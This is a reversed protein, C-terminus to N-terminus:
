RRVNAFLFRGSHDLAIGVVHGHLEVRQDPSTVEEETEPDKSSRQNPRFQKFGIQHPVITLQSCLFILTLTAEDTHDQDQLHNKPKLSEFHLILFVLLPPKVQEQEEASNSSQVTTQKRVLLCRMNNYYSNFIDSRVCLPPSFNYSSNM